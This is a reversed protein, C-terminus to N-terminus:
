KEHRLAEAPNISAAKYAPFIGAFLGVVGLSIIVVVIVNFSLVPKPSGFYQLLTSDMPIFSIMILIIKTLLIGLLGGTATTLLAEFAYYLLIEYGKAGLAMQIGINHTSRKVSIFMVNAIGVGAVILTLGGILGLVIEIGYLFLNLKTKQEQLNTFILIGPDKADIQRNKAIIRSVEKQISPLDSLNSPAIIFNHFDHKNTLEQYTSYPVWSSFDDPARNTSFLQLSKQQVGIVTFPKSALLIIKGLPDEDKKFLEKVLRSGLVIVQRHEKIDQDNIFRGGKKINVRHIQRYEKSVGIVPPGEWSNKSNYIKANWDATGSVIGKDALARQLISLDQQTLTVKIGNTQGQFSQTSVGGRVLMSETQSEGVVSGFTLRLGEGVSLMCAISFTGWAVALITLTLRTRNVLMNKIIHRIPIM